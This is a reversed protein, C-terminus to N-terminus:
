TKENGQSLTAIAEEMGKQRRLEAMRETLTSKEDALKKLQAIQESQEPTLGNRVELEHLHLFLNSIAQNTPAMYTEDGTLVYGRVGTEMDMIISRVEQLHYKYEESQEIKEASAILRQSYRHAFYAMTCMATLISFVAFLIKKEPKTLALM